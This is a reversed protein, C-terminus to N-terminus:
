LEHYWPVTERKKGRIKGNKQAGIVSKLRKGQCRSSNGSSGRWSPISGKRERIGREGAESAIWAIEQGV